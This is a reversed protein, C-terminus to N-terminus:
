EILAFRKIGADLLKAGVNRRQLLLHTRPMISSARAKKCRQPVCVHEGGGRAKGRERGGERERGQGRQESGCAEHVYVVCMIICM